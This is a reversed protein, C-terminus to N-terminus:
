LSANSKQLQEYEAEISEKYTLIAEVTHGYKRKM